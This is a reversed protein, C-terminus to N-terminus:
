RSKDPATLMWRFEGSLGAITTSPTPSVIPSSDSISLCGVEANATACVAHLTSTTLSLAIHSNTWLECEIASLRSPM